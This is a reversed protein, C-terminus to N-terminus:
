RAINIIDDYAFQSLHLSLSYIYLINAYYIDPM